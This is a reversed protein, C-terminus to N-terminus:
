RIVPSRREQPAKRAAVPRECALSPQAAAPFLEAPAEGERGTNENILICICINVATAEVGLQRALKSTRQAHLRALSM